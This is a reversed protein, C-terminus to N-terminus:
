VGETDSETLTCASLLTLPSVARLGPPPGELSAAFEAAAAGPRAVSFYFVLRDNGPITNATGYHLVSADYLVVDGANVTALRAPGYTEILSLDDVENRLHAAFNASGPLFSTAGHSPTPCDQLYVFGVIRPPLDGDGDDEHFEDSEEDSEEDFRRLEAAMRDLEAAAEAETMALRGGWADDEGKGDDVEKRSEGAGSEGEGAEDYRLFDAHLNQHSSGPRSWLAACEILEPYEPDTAHTASAGAEDHRPLCRAADTLIPALTTLAQRLVASVLEDELPLLIDSRSGDDFEIEVAERFRLRTGPVMRTDDQVWRDAAGRMEELIRQKLAAALSSDVVSDLRAVGLRHVADAADSPELPILREADLMLEQELRRPRPAVNLSFGRVLACLLLFMLVM